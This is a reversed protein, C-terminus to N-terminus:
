GGFEPTDSAASQRAAEVADQVERAQATETLFNVIIQVVANIQQQPAMAEIDHGYQRLVAQLIRTANEDSAETTATLNAVRLRLDAM